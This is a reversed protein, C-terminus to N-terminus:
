RRSRCSGLAVIAAACACNEIDQPGAGGFLRSQADEFFLYRCFQKTRSIWFVTATRDETGEMCAKFIEIGNECANLIASANVEKKWKIDLAALGMLMTKVRRLSQPGHTQLCPYVDSLKLTDRLKRDFVSPWADGFLQLGVVHGRDNKVLVCLTQPEDPVRETVTVKVTHICHEYFSHKFRLWGASYHRLLHLNLQNWTEADQALPGFIRFFPLYLDESVIMSLLERTKGHSVAPARGVTWEPDFHMSDPDFASTEM